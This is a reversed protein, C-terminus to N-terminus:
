PGYRNLLGRLQRELRLRVDSASSAAARLSPPMYKGAAVANPEVPRPPAGLNAAAATQSSGDSEYAVLPSAAEDQRDEEDEGDESFEEVDEEVDADRGEEAEASDDDDDDDADDADVDSGSVSAGPQDDDDDSDDDVLPESAESESDLGALLDPPRDSWSRRVM